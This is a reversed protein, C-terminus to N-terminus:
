LGFRFADEEGGWNTWWEWQWSAAVVVIASCGAGLVFQGVSKGTPHMTM